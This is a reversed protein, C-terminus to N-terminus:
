LFNIGKDEISEEYKFLRKGKGAIMHSTRLDERSFLQIVLKNGLSKNKRQQPIFYKSNMRKQTIPEQAKMASDNRENALQERKTKFKKALEASSRCKMDINM